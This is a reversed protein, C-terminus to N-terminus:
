ESDRSLEATPKGFPCKCTLRAFPCHGEVHSSKVLYSKFSTPELMFILQPQSTWKRPNLPYFDDAHCIKDEGVRYKCNQLPPKSDLVLSSADFCLVFAATGQIVLKYPTVVQAIPHRIMPRVSFLNPNTILDNVWSGTWSFPRLMVDSHMRGDFPFVMGFKSNRIAIYNPVFNASIDIDM